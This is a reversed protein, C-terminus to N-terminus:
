TSVVRSVDAPVGVGSISGTETFQWWAVKSFPAPAPPRNKNYAALWLPCGDIANLIAVREDHGIPTNTNPLGYITDRWFSPATYLIPVHGATKLATVMNVIKMARTPGDLKQWLDKKQKDYTWEIDIALGLELTVGAVAALYNAAQDSTQDLPQVWHYAGVLLGAAHAEKARAVFWSRWAASAGDSAKLMVGVVGAGAMQSFNLNGDGHYADVILDGVKLNTSM